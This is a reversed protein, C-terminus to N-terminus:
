PTLEGDSERQTDCDVWKIEFYGPAIEKKGMKLLINNSPRM